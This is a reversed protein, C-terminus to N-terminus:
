QTTQKAPESVLKMGLAVLAAKQAALNTTAVSVLKDTNVLAPGRKLIPAKVTGDDTITVPALLVANAASTDGSVVATYNASASKLIQGRIWNQEGAAAVGIITADERCYRPDTEWLLLEDVRVEDTLIAM